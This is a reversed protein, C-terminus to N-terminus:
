PKKYLEDYTYQVLHIVETWTLKGDSLCNTLMAAINLYQAHKAVGEYKQLATIACAIIKDPENLSMCEEAIRLQQLVMPLYKRLQDKVADDIGSPIVATLIDAVPSDIVAKIAEVVQVSPVVYKQVQKFASRFLGGIWNFFKKM